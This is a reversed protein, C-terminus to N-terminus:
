ARLILAKTPNPPPDAWGTWEPCGLDPLNWIQAWGRVKPAYGLYRKVPPQYNVASHLRYNNYYRVYTDLADQGIGFRDEFDEVGRQVGTFPSTGTMKRPGVQVDDLHDFAPASSLELLDGTPQHMSSGVPDILHDSCRLSIQSPDVRGIDFSEVGGKPSPHGRQHSARATQCLGYLM